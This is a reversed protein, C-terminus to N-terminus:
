RLAHLCDNATGMSSFYSMTSEAPASPESNERKCAMALGTTPRAESLYPLLVASRQLMHPFMVLTANNHTATSKRVDRRLLTTSPRLSPLTWSCASVLVSACRPELIARAPAHKLRAKERSIEGTLAAAESDFVAGAVLANPSVFSGFIKFAMCKRSRKDKEPMSNERGKKIM